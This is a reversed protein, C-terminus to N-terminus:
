KGPFLGEEPDFYEFIIGDYIDHIPDEKHIVWGIIDGGMKKFLRISLNFPYKDKRVAVFHPRALVNTLLYTLGKPFLPFKYAKYPLLLQGRTYQKANKKFWMLIRPDFSEIVVNGKYNELENKVKQSTEKYRKTPKIEIILDVQGNILELVEKLKPVRHGFLDIDDIVESTSASFITEDQLLRLFDKDHYVYLDNNKSLQVDLEIGYGRKISEKFAIITNEPIKQDETHYGRHTYIGKTPKKDKEKKAPKIMWLYLLVILSITIIIKILLDM